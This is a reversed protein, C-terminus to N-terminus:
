DSAVVHRRLYRPVDHHARRFRVGDGLVFTMAHLNAHEVMCFAFPRPHVAIRRIVSAEEGPDSGGADVAPRDARHARRM